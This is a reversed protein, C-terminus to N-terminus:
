EPVVELVPEGWADPIRTHIQLLKVWRRVALAFVIAMLVMVTIALVALLYHKTPLYNHVVNLYGAWFTIYAMFIGPLVTVWAYRAKGVRILMCTCIILGCAALLQNSIGFLPWITGIEGHVGPVGV